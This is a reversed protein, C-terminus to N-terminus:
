SVRSVQEACTGRHFGSQGLSFSKVLVMTWNPALDMQEGLRESPWPSQSGSKSCSYWCVYCVEFQEAATDVTNCFDYCLAFFSGLPTYPHLNSKLIRQAEWPLGLASHLRFIHTYLSFVLSPPPFALVKGRSQLYVNLFVALDVEKRRLVCFCNWRIWSISPSSKNQPDRCGPAQLFAAIPPIQM